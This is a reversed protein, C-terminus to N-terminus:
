ASSPPFFTFNLSLKKEYLRETEHVCNSELQRIGMKAKHRTIALLTFFSHTDLYQTSHTNASASAASSGPGPPLSLAPFVPHPGPRGSWSWRGLWWACLSACRGCSSAATARVSRQVGLPRWTGGSFHVTLKSTM